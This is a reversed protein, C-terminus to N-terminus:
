FAFSAKSKSDAAIALLPSNHSGNKKNRCRSLFTCITFQSSFHLSFQSSLDDTMCDAQLFLKRFKPSIIQVCSHRLDSCVFNAFCHDEFFHHIRLECLIHEFVYQKWSGDLLWFGLLIRGFHERSGGLDKWFGELISTLHWWLSRPFLKPGRM